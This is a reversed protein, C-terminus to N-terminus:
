NKELWSKLGKLDQGWDLSSDVLHKYGNKSGGAFQNFYSIYNPWAIFAEAMMWAFLSLVAIQMTRRGRSLLISISGGIIFLSPYIALLHRHGINTRSSMAFLMYIIIFSIFPILPYIKDGTMFTLPNNFNNKGKTLILVSIMLLFILPLPTKYFFTFLFFYWWGETSFESDLFSYRSKGYKIFFACGYLYAEPLIKCNKAGSILSGFTGSQNLYSETAQNLAIRNQGSDDKLMSYRFGCAAWIFLIIIVANVIGAGLLAPLQLKQTKFSFIKGFWNVQLPKGSLLRMMIMTLYFPIIMLASHKTVFLLGLALSSFIITAVSIKNVLKWITWIAILFIFTSATDTTALGGHSLFDPSFAFLFLSVLGGSVGFISRSIFYIAIGLFLGILLVMIRSHLIMSDADNGSRFLFDRSTEWEDAGSFFNDGKYPFNLKQPLLPLALLAETLFGGESSMKLDGNKLYNYGGTIHFPEDFVPAKRFTSSIVLFSYISLLLLVPLCELM